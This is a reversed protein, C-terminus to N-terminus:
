KKENLNDEYYTYDGRSWRVLDERQVKQRIREELLKRLQKEVLEKVLESREEETGQTIKKEM